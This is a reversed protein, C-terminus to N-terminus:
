TNSVMRSMMIRSNEFYDSIGLFLNHQSNPSIHTTPERATGILAKKTSNKESLGDKGNTQDSAAEVSALEEARMDEHVHSHDDTNLPFEDKYASHQYGHLQFIFLLFGVFILGSNALKGFVKFTSSERWNSLILAMFVLAVVQGLEVGVNFSLIRLVLQIGDEGLPLQQLRTSLGFGHILGFAFVM